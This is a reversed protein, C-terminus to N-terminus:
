KWMLQPITSIFSLCTKPSHSQEPNLLYHM